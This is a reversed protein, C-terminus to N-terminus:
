WSGNQDAPDTPDTPDTTHDPRAPPPPTMVLGRFNYHLGADQLLLILRCLPLGMVAFYDGTIAEVLTSGRGQIGYGGAKDLPEGTEAYARATAEDFARFRVAVREVGSYTRVMQAAGPNASAPLAGATRVSGDTGGAAGGSAAAGRCVAVGTAVEHERGQLRLLMRVADDPDRPKGLVDGDIVVVTDSGIVVADPYRAAIAEAKERALREAHAAPAEGPAYTEDIDAPVADPELGLMRLLEARRPSQSALILRPAVSPRILDDPM